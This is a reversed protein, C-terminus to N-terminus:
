VIHILHDMITPAVDSKYIVSLFCLVGMAFYCLLHTTEMFEELTKNTKNIGEESNQVAKKVGVLDSLYRQVVDQPTRVGQRDQKSM